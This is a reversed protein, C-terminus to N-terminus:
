RGTLGTVAVPTWRPSVGNPEDNKVTLTVPPRDPTSAAITQDGAARKSHASRAPRHVQRQHSMPGDSLSVRASLYHRQASSSPTPMAPRTTIIQLSAQTTNCTGAPGTDATTVFAQERRTPASPESAEGTGAAASTSILGEAPSLTARLESSEEMCCGIRLPKGEPSGEQPCSHSARASSSTATSM